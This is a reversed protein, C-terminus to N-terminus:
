LPKQSVNALGFALVHNILKITYGPSNHERAHAVSQSCHVETRPFCMLQVKSIIIIM